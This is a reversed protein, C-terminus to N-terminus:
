FSYYYRYYYFCCCSPPSSLCLVYKGRFFITFEVAKGHNVLLRFCIRCRPCLSLHSISIYYISQGADTHNPRDSQSFQKLTISLLRLLWAEPFHYNMMWGQLQGPKLHICVLVAFVLIGPYRGKCSGGCLALYIFIMFCGQLKVYVGLFSPQFSFTRKFSNSKLTWTSSRPHLLKPIWECAPM